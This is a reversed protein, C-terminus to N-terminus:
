RLLTSKKKFGASNKEVSFFAFNLAILCFLLYVLEILLIRWVFCCFRWKLDLIIESNQLLAIKTMFKSVIKTYLESAQFICYHVSFPSSNTLICFLFKLLKCIMNTASFPCFLHMAIYKWCRTNGFHDVLTKQWRGTIETQRWGSICCWHLVTYVM